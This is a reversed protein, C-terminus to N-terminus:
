TVPGAWTRTVAVTSPAPANWNWDRTEPLIWTVGTSMVALGGVGTPGVKLAFMLSIWCPERSGVPGWVTVNWMFRIPASFPPASIRVDMSLTAAGPGSEYRNM